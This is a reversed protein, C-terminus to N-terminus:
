PSRTPHLHTISGAQGSGATHQYIRLLALGLQFHKVGEPHALQIVIHPRHSGMCGHGKSIHDPSVMLRSQINNQRTEPMAKVGSMM